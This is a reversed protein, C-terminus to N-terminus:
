CIIIPFINHFCCLSELMKCFYQCIIGLRVTVRYGIYLHSQSIKALLFIEIINFIFTILYRVKSTQLPETSQWHSSPWSRTLKEEKLISSLRLKNLMNQQSLSNPLQYHLSLGQTLGLSKGHAQFTWVGHGLYLSHNLKVYVAFNTLAM